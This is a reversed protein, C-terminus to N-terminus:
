TACLTDTHVQLTKQVLVESPQFAPQFVMTLHQLKDRLQLLEATHTSQPATSKLSAFQGKPQHFQELQEALPHHTESEECYEDSTENDGELM